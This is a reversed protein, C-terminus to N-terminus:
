GAAEAGPAFQLDDQLVPQAEDIQPALLRGDGIFGDMGRDHDRSQSPGTGREEVLEQGIVGIIAWGEQPFEEVRDGGALPGPRCHAVGAMPGLETVVLDGEHVFDDGSEGGHV